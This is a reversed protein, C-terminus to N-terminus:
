FCKQLGFWFLQFIDKGLNAFDASTESGDLIAIANRNKESLILINELYAEFYRASNNSGTAIVADFDKLRPTFEFYDAARSDFKILLKILYPLIFRDKESLKVKAKNGSIFVCLIDHFGVLPINGALVLGVTKPQHNEKIKYNVVWHELKEKNLFANAISRIANHQNAKTFWLNNFETQHILADLFEDEGLLHEGLRASIQIRDTLNM